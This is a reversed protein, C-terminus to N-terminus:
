NKVLYSYINDLKKRLLLHWIDIDFRSEYDTRRLVLINVIPQNIPKVEGIMFALDPVLYRKITPFMIKSSNFSELSRTMITLDSATTYINNDFKILTKNRYNITQPMIIIKNHRFLSIILNRSSTSSRWLDGFNGGGHM